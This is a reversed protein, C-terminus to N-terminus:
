AEQVIHPDREPQAHLDRDRSIMSVADDLVSAMTIPRATPSRRFGPDRSVLFECFPQLLSIEPNADEIWLFQGMQNVELFVYEGEPTVVFDFCGFLLGLRHMVARCADAIRTPLDIPTIRLEGSSAIRWDVAGRATDQSHLQAAIVEGGMCTVRVEFAKPVYAQYISPSLQLIDDDPLDALTLKSTYLIAIHDGGEWTVPKFPKMITGTEQHAALFARIRAPDNGVLTPPVALGLEHAVQLQVLKNEASRAREYDNVAFARRSVAMLLGRVFLETERIAFEKDGAVLARRLVPAGVRRNWLVDVSDIALDDDVGAGPQLTVPGADGVAFTATGAEPLDGCFWRIPRHGMDGLVRAVAAAHIDDQITPILITAM